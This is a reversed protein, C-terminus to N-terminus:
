SRTPSLRPRPGHSDHLWCFQSSNYISLRTSCGPAACFRKRSYTAITGGKLPQGYTYQSM